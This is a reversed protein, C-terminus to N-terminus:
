AKHQKQPQNLFDRVLAQARALTDALRDNVLVVDFRAAYEMEGAAKALRDRIREERDTSRQRLRKELERMSPPRVFVALAHEGFYGKLNLGGVVDVDFIVHRNKKWIRDLETKLTGYYHDPYVEEWELFDDRAIHERFEAVSMFYYDRGDEEYERPQRSCASISFELGMDLELLHKVLTTKGAGSPASFIIAKGRM